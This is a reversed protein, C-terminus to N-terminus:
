QASAMMDVVADGPVYMAGEPVGIEGVDDFNGHATSTNFAIFTQDGAEPAPVAGTMAVMSLLSTLDWEFKSENLLTYYPEEDLIYQWSGSDLGGVLMPGIMPMFMQVQALDSPSIAVEGSAELQELVFDLFGPSTVFGALDFTTEFVAADQGDIEENELRTIDMYDGLIEMQGEPSALALPAAVADLSGDSTDLDMQSFAYELVPQLDTGIWGEMDGMEPVIASLDDLNIYGQGDTIVYRLSMETPLPYGIQASILEALEDNLNIHTEQATDIGNVLAIVFEELADQDSVMAIAEEAGLGAMTAQLEDSIVFDSIQTWDGSIESFPTEPIGGAFFEFYADYSGETLAEMADASAHLIDCDVENLDGCFIVPGDGADQAFVQATPIALIALALLLSILTRM